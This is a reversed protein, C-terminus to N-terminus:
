AHEDESAVGNSIAAETPGAEDTTGGGAECLCPWARCLACQIPIVIRKMM